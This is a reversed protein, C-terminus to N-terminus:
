HKQGTDQWKQWSYCAQKAMSRLLVKQYNYLIHWDGPFPLLWQMRSGYQRRLSQLIDYTKADGVVVLWQFGLEVIFTAHLNKLAHLLTEKSDAPLSM